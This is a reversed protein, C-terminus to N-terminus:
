VFLKVNTVVKQQISRGDSLSILKFITSFFCGNKPLLWLGDISQHKQIKNFDKGKKRKRKKLCMKISQNLALRISWVGRRLSNTKKKSEIYSWLQFGFVLQTQMKNDAKKIEILRFLSWVMCTYKHINSEIQHIM